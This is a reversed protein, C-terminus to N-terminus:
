IKRDWFHISVPPTIVSFEFLGSGDISFEARWKFYYSIELQQGNLMVVFLCNHKGFSFSIDNKKFASAQEERMKM